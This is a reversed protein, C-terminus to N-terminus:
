DVVLHMLFINIECYLSIWYFFCSMSPVYFMKISMKKVSLSDMLSLKGGVVGEVAEVRLLLKLYTIKM